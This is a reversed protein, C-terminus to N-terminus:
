KSPFNLTFTTETTTLAQEVEQQLNKYYAPALMHYTESSIEPFGHRNLVLLNKSGKPLRKIEDQAMTVFAKRFSSNAGISPAFIVKARGKVIHEVEVFFSKFEELNSFGPFLDCVVITEVKEKLLEEIAKEVTEPYMTWGTMVPVDPFQEKMLSKVGDFIAHHQRM